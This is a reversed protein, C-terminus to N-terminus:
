KGVEYKVKLYLTFQVVPEVVVPNIVKDFGNGDLANFFFTKGKRAQVISYRQMNPPRSMSESEAATYSDYMETPYYIAPREAYVEAPQGAKIGLLREDRALKQKIVASAEVMLKDQVANIDKVVYDVKILDYIQVKAAAAVIKDLLNRDSYHISVNKKLEFGTLKERAVSESVEYGYIKPQTIFDVGIDSERVHLAKLADTFERITADMKENAEQVTAGEHSVGFVAVFEDAKVNMLVDADVFMSNAPPLDQKTLVRQSKENQVARAKAGNQGYAVNGSTQAGCYGSVLVGCALMLACREVIWKGTDVNM